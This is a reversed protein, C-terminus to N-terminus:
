RYSQTPDTIKLRPLSDVGGLAGQCGQNNQM